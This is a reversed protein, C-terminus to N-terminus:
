DYGDVMMCIEVIHEWEEVTWKERSTWRWHHVTRKIELFLADSKNQYEERRQKESRNGQLAWAKMDLEYKERLLDSCQKITLAKAAQRQEHNDEEGEQYLRPLEEIEPTHKTGKAKRILKAAGDLFTAQVM